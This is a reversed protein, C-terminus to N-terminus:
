FNREIIQQEYDIFVKTQLNSDFTPISGQTVGVTLHAARGSLQKSLALSTEIRIPCGRITGKLQFTWKFFFLPLCSKFRRGRVQFSRARGVSSNGSIIQVFLVIDGHINDWECLYIECQAKDIIQGSQFLIETTNLIETNM